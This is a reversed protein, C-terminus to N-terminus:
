AQVAPAMAQDLDALIDELDEIGVSLRVLGDSIGAKLRDERAMGAHTMSAPHSILTEVGGLSVALGALHVRDMMARGAELGGKLEFAIMSGPGAMQRKALEFQPHSPLGVYCVAAM